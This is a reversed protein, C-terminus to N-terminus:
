EADADRDLFIIKADVLSVGHTERTEIGLGKLDGWCGRDWVEWLPEETVEALVSPHYNGCVFLIRLLTLM